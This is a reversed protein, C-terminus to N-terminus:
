RVVEVQDEPDDKGSGDWPLEGKYLGPGRWRILGRVGDDLGDAEGEWGAVGWVDRIKRKGQLVEGGGYLDERWAGWGRREEARKLEDPDSVDRPPDRGWFTWRRGPWQLAPRHLEEFRARKFAHSVLTVHAPWASGTFTHFRLLSFLLNQFSDLSRPETTTYQPLPPPSLTRSLNQISSM